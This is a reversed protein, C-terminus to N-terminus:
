SRADWILTSGDIKTGVLVVKPHRLISENQSPMSNSSIFEFWYRDVINLDKKEILTGEVIWPRSMDSLRPALWYKLSDIDHHMRLSFMEAQFEPMGLEINLADTHCQVNKGCVEVEDLPKL